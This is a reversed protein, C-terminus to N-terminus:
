DEPTEAIENHGELHLLEQVKQYAADWRGEFRVGRDDLYVDGVPKGNAWPYDSNRNIEDYPIENDELWRAMAAEHETGSRCSNIIIKWGESKLLRLFRHSGEIPKGIAPYGSPAWRAITGDFDVVLVPPRDSENRIKPEHLLFGSILGRGRRELMTILVLVLLAQVLLFIATLPEAGRLGLAAIGLTANMMIIFVVAKTRDGLVAAIRHHLHDQGTYDIWQYFSRVKGSAVRDLTIYTMDYILVSFILLPNSIAVLPDANAWFGLLALSALMFGLFNSGSDGLFITARRGPRFNYPLFGLCAGAIAATAWGIAPQNTEFAVIGMFVAIVTSIGAALGDMGDLFNLANFIGVIWVFSLAINAAAGLPNDAPFITARAGAAVALGACILFTTFKISSRIPRVDDRASFLMLLTATALVPALGAPWVSNALLAAVIGLWVAVGGLLATPRDHIKRGDVGGPKDLAGLRRALERVLPTSVGSVCFSLALVYAWRYGGGFFLNRGAPLLLVFAGVALLFGFVRERNTM